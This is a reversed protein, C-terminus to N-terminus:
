HHLELETELGRDAFRDRGRGASEDLHGNVRHPGTAHPRVRVRHRVLEHVDFGAKKTTPSM